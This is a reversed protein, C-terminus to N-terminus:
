TGADPPQRQLESNVFGRWFTLLAILAMYYKLHADPIIGSVSAIAAITGQLFGLLKTGHNKLFKLIVM